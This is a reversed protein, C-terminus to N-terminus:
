APRPFLLLLRAGFPAAYCLSPAGKDGIAARGSPNGISVPALGPSGGAPRPHPGPGRGMRCGLSAARAGPNSEITVALDFSIRASECVLEPPNSVQHGGLSPNPSKDWPLSTCPLPAASNDSGAPGESRHSSIEGAREGWLGVCWCKWGQVCRDVMDAMDGQGKGGPSLWPCAWIDVVGMGWFCARVQSRPCAAGVAGLEM